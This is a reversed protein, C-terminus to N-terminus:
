DITLFNSPIDKRIYILVGRENASRNSRYTSIFGQLLLNGVSVTTDIKKESIM